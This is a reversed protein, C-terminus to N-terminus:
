ADPEDWSAAAARLFDRETVLGVLKHGAEDIVPLCTAGADRRLSLAARTATEATVAIPDPEMIDRVARAAGDLGLVSEATVLGVLRGQADEVPLHHIRQWKMVRVALEALDDPRLTYLDRSMLEGVNAYRPRAATEALPWLHVPDGARQRELMAAVLARERMAPMAPMAPMSPAVSDSADDGEMAALSALAWSAGTKGASVRAAVVDLYRRADDADFGDKELARRAAPLLELILERAPRSKGDLWTLSAGLGDRAAAFFNNRADEFKMKAAVDGHEGTLAAVLGYFFAANAVEDRITPGAPLVRHEIRLHAKGGAVGYCVRNWRYITGAHLRLATLKPLEGRALVDSPPEDREASLILRFRAVDERFIEAVSKKVWGSGFTVRPDSGRKQHTTSREDVSGEFLAVRTEHWLRRGLFVPANVAAALVPATALQAANYTAALEDPPVQLHIQFSTNCGELMVNDHVMQLRDLGRIDIAFAGGRLQVMARNLAHYRPSPTMRDLQLDRERLTPLIGVLVVDAGEKRAARRAVGIVDALERELASLSRGGYERPSLNAELNFQALESVLRADHEKELLAPAVAAPLREGDVLFMEQEAGIRRAGTELRGEALMTELADLDDLVAKAFLRLQEESPLADVDHQGM